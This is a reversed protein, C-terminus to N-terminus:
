VVGVGVRSLSLGEKLIDRMKTWGLFFLFLLFQKSLSGPKSVFVFFVKRRKTRGQFLSLPRERERETEFLEDCFLKLLRM